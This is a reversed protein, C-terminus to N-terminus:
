LLRRQRDGGRGVRFAPLAILLRDTRGLARLEQVARTLAARVALRAKEDPAGGEGTSATVVVGHPPHVQKLPMWFSDGVKCDGGHQKRLRTLWKDFGPVQSEFSSCLSGDRGLYTSASYAIADARIRTIDGPAIFLHNKM